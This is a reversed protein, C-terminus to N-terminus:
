PSDLIISILVFSTSILRLWGRLRIPLLTVLDLFTFWIFTQATGYIVLSISFLLPYPYIKLWNLTSYVISKSLSILALSILINSM